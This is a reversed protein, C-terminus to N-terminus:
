STVEQVEIGHAAKDIAVNMFSEVLEDALSAIAHGKPELRMKVAVGSRPPTGDVGQRKIYGGKELAYSSNRISAGDVGAAAYVHTTVMEGGHEHILMLILVDQVDLDLREATSRAAKRTAYYRTANTM